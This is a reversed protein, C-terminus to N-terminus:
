PNLALSLSVFQGTSVAEFVMMGKFCGMNTELVAGISSKSCDSFQNHSTETGDLSSPYM